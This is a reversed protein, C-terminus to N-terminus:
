SISPMPYPGLPNRLEHGLLELFDDKARESPKRDTIDTLLNVAGMLEGDEGHMPNAHALVAVRRGGPQEVVIECGNYERNESLARAMWSREHPLPTGDRAFLRFSGCYRDRADHLLPERGWIEVARRNFYTILGDRDCVYAGAPVADLVRHFDTVDAREVPLSGRRSLPPAQSPLDARMSMGAGSLDRGLHEDLVRKLTAASYPKLLAVNGRAIVMDIVSEHGTMLVVPMDPRMQHARTCFELGGMGPMVIDSM